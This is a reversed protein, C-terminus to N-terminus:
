QTAQVRKNQLVNLIKAGIDSHFKHPRLVLKEEVSALVEPSGIFGERTDVWEVTYQGDPVNLTVSGCEESDECRIYVAYQRGQEALVYVASAGGRDAIAANNPAMHVFDFGEMFDKLIRLQKRIRAGGGFNVERLRRAGGEDGVCFSVDLHSFLGGGALMFQWAQIRYPEDSSGDFGTENCGILRDLHYNLTVCKPEPRPYHFNLISIAPHSETVEAWEHAVNRSVLHQLPLRMEVNLILEAIYHQWEITVCGFYPENCIEYYLNDHGNVEQIIKKVMADQYKLLTMHKLTFLETPPIEGLDNVNNDPHFPSLNWRVLGKEDKGDHGVYHPCFLNIEVVIGREDALQCFDRLRSFFVEDWRNLDFKNGGDRSGSVHSRGFPCVFRNLKPGLSNKPWWEDPQERYVGVFLRTHNFNENRLTDLYKRYNFDLNLVSGYHEGSTILVTPKGRFIFYHPNAPHLSIANKNM